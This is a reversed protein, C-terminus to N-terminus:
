RHRRGARHPPQLGSRRVGPRPRHAPLPGGRRGRLLPHAGPPPARRVAGGRAAGALGPGIQLSEGDELLVIGENTDLVEDMSVSGLLPLGSSSVDDAHHIRNESRARVIVIGLALVLGAFAGLLAYTM